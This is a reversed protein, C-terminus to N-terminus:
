MDNTFYLLHYKLACQLSCTTSLFNSFCKKMTSMVYKLVLCSIPTKFIAMRDTEHVQALDKYSLIANEETGFFHIFFKGGSFMLHLGYEKVILVTILM